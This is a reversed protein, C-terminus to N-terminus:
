LLTIALVCFWIRRVDGYDTTSILGTFSVASAMTGVPMVTFALATAVLKHVCTVYLLVMVSSHIVRRWFPAVHFLGNGDKVLPSLCFTCCINSSTNFSLQAWHRALARLNRPELAEVSFSLGVSGAPTQESDEETLPQSRLKHRQVGRQIGRLRGRSKRVPM